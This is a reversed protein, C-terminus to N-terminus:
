QGRGAARGRGHQGGVPRSGARTGRGRRPHGSAGERQTAPWAAAGAVLEDYGFELRDGGVRRAIVRQGAVDFDTVEAMVCDVNKYKKLLDRLPTAIKGESLIGTACQYLLPAFVHHQSRDIMTVSVNKRMARVAFLGAFGGGVIVVRRPGSPDTM